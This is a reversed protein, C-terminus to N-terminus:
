NTKRLYNVIAGYRIGRTSVAIKEIGFIEMFKYLIFAGAFIIDERGKMVSGYRNLIEVPILSSLEKVMLKMDQFTILSKDVKKEEFEKLGLNM